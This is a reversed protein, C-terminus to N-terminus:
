NKLQNNYVGKTILIYKVGDPTLGHNAALTRLIRYPKAGPYRKNLSEYENLIEKDRNARWEADKRSNQYMGSRLLILRIWVPTLGYRSAITKVLKWPSEDPYEGLLQKFDAKISADREIKETEKKSLIIEM